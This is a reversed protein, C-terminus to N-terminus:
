FHPDKEQHVRNIAPFIRAVYSPLNKRKLLVCSMMCPSISNLFAGGSAVFVASKLSCYAINEELFKSSSPFPPQWCPLTRRPCPCAGPEPKDAAWFVCEDPFDCSNCCPRGRPCPLARQGPSLWYLFLLFVGRGFYSKNRWRQCHVTNLADEPPSAKMGGILLLLLHVCLFTIM